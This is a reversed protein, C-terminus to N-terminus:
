YEIKYFGYKDITRTEIKGAEIRTDISSDLKVEVDFGNYNLIFKVTKGTSQEYYTVVVVNGNDCTFDTAVYNDANAVSDTVYNYKSTYKIDTDTVTVTETPTESPYKANYRSVLEEILKDFGYSNLEAVDALNFREIAYAELKARNFEVNLTKGVATNPDDRWAKLKKNVKDAAAKDLKEVYEKVLDEFNKKSDVSNIIREAILAQHDIIEFNQLNGIAGNLKNYHEVIEDFWNEYDVGYYKSLQEDDKLYNTNQMCLIYYLSAGNEISRLINYDVSGTYNLPTGAYNVYGHLVMGMFPVTYSTCMLHSSDITANVIHDVYKVSYINGIDTMLSYGGTTAMTNLLAVVDDMSQERDIFKEPEILSGTNKDKKPNDLTSNLISGLTSVSLNKNDYKSYDKNFKEYLEAMVDSRVLIAFLSDYKGSISNYVQKSAYRNDLMKAAHSNNNVGDFIATNNIFHFDFDPFIGFNTNPDGDGAQTKSSSVLSKFGAEGGLSNEWWVRAPYTYYMGGNAYGTLKFNVNKIGKASFDNYMTQVDAFSTLPTSVSVPFTLIKQLVDMAGLTEIYLPLATADTQVKSILGNAELYDKYCKAMGIYTTPYYSTVGKYEAVASDTLMFYKTKFSGEFIPNAVMYHKQGKLNSHAASLDYQEFARPAFSASMNFYSHDSSASEALLTALSSGEEIVAFFGNVFDTPYDADYDVEGGGEVLEIESAYNEDISNVIGYVPMTVQERHRALISSYCYDSGYLDSSIYVNGRSSDRFDEFDVVVGSGDPYFLYGDRTEEGAGFYPVPTISRVIFDADNYVISQSPVEISLTGDDNLTYLISCQFRPIKSMASEYGARNELERAREATMEPLFEKIYNAALRHRTVVETPELTKDIAFANQGTTQMAPVFEYWRALYEEYKKRNEDKEEQTLYSDDGDISYSDKLAGVNYDEYNKIIQTIADIHDRIEKKADSGIGCLEMYAKYASIVSNIETPRFGDYRRLAEKDTEYANFSHLYGYEIGSTVIKLAKKKPDTDNLTSLDPFEGLHKILKEELGKFLPKIIYEEFDDALMAGPTREIYSPEGLHYDVKITRTAEDFTVNILSGDLIRKYSNETITTEPNSRESYVLTLQSFVSDPMDAGGDIAAPNTSLLQGTVNNRYYVVGTYRNIYLSYDGYTFHDLYGAFFPDLDMAFMDYVNLYYNKKFSEIILEIDEPTREDADGLFFVNTVSPTESAMATMPFATILFSVALVVTLLASLIRNKM